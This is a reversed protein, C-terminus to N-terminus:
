RRHIVVISRGHTAHVGRAAIVGARSITVASFTWGPEAVADSLNTVRGADWVFAGDAGMGVIEDSESIASLGDVRPNFTEPTWQNAKRWLVPGAGGISLFESSGIVDDSDNIDSASGFRGLGPLVATGEPRIVLAACYLCAPGSVAVGHLLGNIKGTSGVLQGLYDIGGAGGVYTRSRLAPDPTASDFRGYIHGSETIGTVTGSPADPGSGFPFTIAGGTYIAPHTIHGGPTSYNGGGPFGTNCAIQGANNIAVPYCDGLDVRQGVTFRVGGRPSTAFDAASTPYIYGAVEGADNVDVLSVSDSAPLLAISYGPIVSVLLSDRKGLLSAKVYASGAAVATITGDGNVHLVGPDSSEFAPLGADAGPYFFRLSAFITDRYAGVVPAITRGTAITSSMFLAIQTIPATPIPPEVVSRDCAAAALGIAIAVAVPARFRSSRSLILGFPQDRKSHWM